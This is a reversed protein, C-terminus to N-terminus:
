KNINQLIKYNRNGSLTTLIDVPLIQGSQIVVFRLEAKNATNSQNEETASITVTCERGVPGESPSITFANPNGSQTVFFAKWTGGLPSAITFKFEAPSAIDNKLVVIDDDIDDYTDDTWVIKGEDNVAVTNSFENEFAELEWPQVAVGLSATGGPPNVNLTYHVHTNTSWQEISANRVPISVTHTTATNSGIKLTYNVDITQPTGSGLITQPLLYFVKDLKHELEDTIVIPNAIPILHDTKKSDDVVWKDDTSAGNDPNYTDWRNRNDPTTLANGLHKFAVKGTNRISSLKVSNFTLTNNGDSADTLCVGFTVKTLAHRFRMPVASGNFNQLNNSGTMEYYGPQEDAFMYDTEGDVTGSFVYGDYISSPTTVKVPATAPNAVWPSYASFHWAGKTWYYKYGSEITCGTGSVNIKQNDIVVHPTKTIDGDAYWYATVGFNDATFETFSNVIARAQSENDLSFSILKGEDVIMTDSDSSCSVMMMACLMATVKYCDYLGSPYRNKHQIM